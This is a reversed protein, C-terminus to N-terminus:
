QHYVMQAWSHLLLSTRGDDVRASGVGIPDRPVGVFNDLMGTVQREQRQVFRTRVVVGDSVRM